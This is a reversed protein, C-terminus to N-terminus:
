DGEKYSLSLDALFLHYAEMFKEKESPNSIGFNAKLYTMLAQRYLPNTVNKTVGAREMDEIGAYLITKISEDKATATAVIGLTEKALKLLENM